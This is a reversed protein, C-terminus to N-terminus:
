ILQLDNISIDVKACGLVDLAVIIHTTDNAYKMIYGELGQLNGRVVKVKDGLKIPM